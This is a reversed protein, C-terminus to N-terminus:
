SSAKINPYDPHGRLIASLIVYLTISIGALVGVFYEPPFRRYVWECVAATICVGVVVLVVRLVFTATSTAQTPGEPPPAIQPNDSLGKAVSDLARPSAMKFVELFEGKSVDRSLLTRLAELGQRLATAEYARRRGSTLNILMIFGVVFFSLAIAFRVWGELPDLTVQRNRYILGIIGIYLFALSITVGMYYLLRQKM